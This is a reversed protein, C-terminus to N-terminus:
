LTVCCLRFAKPVDHIILERPRIIKKAIALKLQFTPRRIFLSNTLLETYARLRLYGCFSHCRVLESISGIHKHNNLQSLFPINLPLVQLHMAMNKKVKQMGMAIQFMNCEFMYFEVEYYM